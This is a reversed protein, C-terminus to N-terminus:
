ENNTIEKEIAEMEEAWAKLVPFSAFSTSETQCYGARHPCTECDDYKCCIDFIIKKYSEIKSGNILDPNERSARLKLVFTRPDTPNCDHVLLQNNVYEFTLNPSRTRLLEYLKTLMLNNM